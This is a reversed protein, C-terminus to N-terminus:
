IALHIDDALLLSLQQGPKEREFFWALIMIESSETPETLSM